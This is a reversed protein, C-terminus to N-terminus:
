RKGQHWLYLSTPDVNERQQSSCRVHRDLQNYTPDVVQAALSIQKLFM